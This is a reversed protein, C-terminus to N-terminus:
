VMTMTKTLVISSNFEGTQTGNPSGLKDKLQKIIWGWNIESM